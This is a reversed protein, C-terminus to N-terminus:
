KAALVRNPVVVLVPSCNCTAPVARTVCDAYRAVADPSTPMPNVVGNAFNCMRSLTAAVLATCANMCLVLPENFVAASITKPTHDPAIGVPLPLGPGLAFIDAILTEDPLAAVANVKVVYLPRGVVEASLNRMVEAPLTRIPVVVSAPSNNCTFPVTLLEPAAYKAVVVPLTPIANVFAVILPNRNSTFPVVNNRLLVAIPGLVAVKPVEAVFVKAMYM